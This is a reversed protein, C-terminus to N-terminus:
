AARAMSDLYTTLHQAVESADHELGYIFSSSRRRLIPQGLLYMGPQRMVGGDHIIQGHHDLIVPDLWPYASQYGTAWIVSEFDRWGIETVAPPIPTPPPRDPDSVNTSLQGSAVLADIRDLLRQQKLDASRLYNALSGSFQAHRDTAGVLRGVVRVGAQHLEPLGLTRRQPSGILQASPLRRARTRDEVDTDREDLLGLAAMWWHIDHGRYTRPLRV